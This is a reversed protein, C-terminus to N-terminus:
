FYINLVFGVGFAIALASFIAEIARSLGSVFDGSHYRENCKNNGCWTSPGMSAIIM